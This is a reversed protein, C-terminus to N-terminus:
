RTGCPTSARVCASSPHSAIKPLVEPSRAESCQCDDDGNCQKAIHREQAKGTASALELRHDLRLVSSGRQSAMGSISRRDHSQRLVLGM